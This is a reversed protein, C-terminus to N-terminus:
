DFENGTVGKVNVSAIIRDPLYEIERNLVEYKIDSIEILDDKMPIFIHRKFSPEFVRHLMRGDIYFNIIHDKPESIKIGIIDLKWDKM